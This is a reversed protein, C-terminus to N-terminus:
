EAKSKKIPLSEKNMKRAKVILNEIILPKIYRCNKPAVVLFFYGNRFHSSVEKIAIKTFIVTSNSKVEANGKIIKDGSTNAKVLKPPSEMTFLQIAFDLNGKIIKDGSTNAKLLKPPSEMTFLQIAFDLNETLTTKNGNADVIQILLSFSREKYAPNPMESLLELSFIHQPNEGYLFKQLQNSSAIEDGFVSTSAISQSPGQPLSSIKELISKAQEAILKMAENQQAMMRFLIEFPNINASASFFVPMPKIIEQYSSLKKCSCTGDNVYCINNFNCM